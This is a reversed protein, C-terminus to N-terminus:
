TFAPSVKVTILFSVDPKAPPTSTGVRKRPSRNVRGKLLRSGTMSSTTTVYPRAIPTGEPWATAGVKQPRVLFGFIGMMPAQRLAGYSTAPLEFVREFAPGSVRIFGSCRLELGALQLCICSEDRWFVSM